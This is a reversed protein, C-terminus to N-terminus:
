RLLLPLDKRRLARLLADADPGCFASNPEREAVRIAGADADHSVRVPFGDATVNHALADALADPKCESVTNPAQDATGIALNIPKRDAM